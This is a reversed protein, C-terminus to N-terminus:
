TREPSLHKIIGGNDHKKRPFNTIANNVERDASPNLMHNISNQVKYVNYIFLSPRLLSRNASGNKQLAM